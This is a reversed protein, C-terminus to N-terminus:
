DQCNYACCISCPKWLNYLHEKYPLREGACLSIYKSSTQPFQTEGGAREGALKAV